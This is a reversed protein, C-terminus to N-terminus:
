LSVLALDLPFFLYIFWYIVAELVSSWVLLSLFLGLSMSWSQNSHCRSAGRMFSNLDRSPSCICSLLSNCLTGTLPIFSNLINIKSWGELPGVFTSSYLMRTNHQSSLFIKWTLLYTCGGSGGHTQLPRPLHSLLWPGVGRLCLWGAGMPLHPVAHSWQLFTWGTHQSADPVPLQKDWWAPSASFTHPQNISSNNSSSSCSCSSFSLCECKSM